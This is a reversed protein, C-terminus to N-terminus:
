PRGQGHSPMTFVELPDDAVSEDRRPVGGHKVLLAKIAAAVEPELLATHVLIHKFGHRILVGFGKSLRGQDDASEPPFPPGAELEKIRQILANNEMDDPYRNPSLYEPIPGNYIPQGHVTQYFTFLSAATARTVGRSRTIPVELIAQGRPAKAAVHYFDPVSLKGRLIPFNVTTMGSALVILTCAALLGLKPGRGMSKVELLARLGGGALLILAFIGVFILRQPFQVRSIGPMVGDLLSFPMFSCSSWVIEDNFVLCPGLALLASAGVVALAAVSWRRRRTALGVGALLLPVAWRLPFFPAMRHSDTDRYATVAAVPDLSTILKVEFANICLGDTIKLQRGEQALFRARDVIGTRRGAMGATMQREVKSIRQEVSGVGIKLYFPYLFLGIAAGTAGLLLLRRRDGTFGKIGLTIPVYIGTFIVLLLGMYWSWTAAMIFWFVALVSRRITAGEVLQHLAAVFLLAWGLNAFEVLANQINLIVLPNFGALVGCFFGVGRDRFLQVGLVYGGLCTILLSGLVVLDYTAEMNFGLAQPILGFFFLSFGSNAHWLSVGPPYYLLDTFLFSRAPDRAAQYWWWFDWLHNQKDVGPEGLTDLGLELLTPYTAVLVLATYALVVSFWIKWSSKM